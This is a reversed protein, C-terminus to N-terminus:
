ISTMSSCFACGKLVELPVPDFTPQGALNLPLDFWFTSGEDEKCEAHISGGMLEMLQKCIALGLGTGGYRRTISSDAQSFKNFLIGLKSAPIGIGTDAVSVIARAREDDEARIEVGVTVSGRATFKVANGVLNLLVQRVRDGDGSFHTPLGSPYQVV